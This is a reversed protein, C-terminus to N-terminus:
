FFRRKCSLKKRSRPELHNEPVKPARKKLQFLTCNPPKWAEISETVRMISCISSPVACLKVFNGENVVFKQHHVVRTGRVAIFAVSHSFKWAMDYVFTYRFLCSVYGFKQGVQFHM